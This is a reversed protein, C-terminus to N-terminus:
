GHHAACYADRAASNRLPGYATTLRLTAAQSAAYAEISAAVDARAQASGASVLREANRWAIERWTPIVQFFLFDDATGPVDADDITPDFRRAIEAYLDDTVRNLFRNVRDHDTKRSSGDPKVLGIGALVFPLDRQVHANIGLSLNGSAPMARDAAARFAIAWAPPVAERRGKHWDDFADFYYRAFVVDEHNVFATDEFFTPDEITRRYEETTRLYALAFISDHDCSAALPEFRRQMERIVADVCRTRGATCDNESSPLYQDALGPLLETWGVYPPDQARAGPAALLAVALLLGVVRLRVM